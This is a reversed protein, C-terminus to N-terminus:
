RQRRRSRRRPRGNGRIQRRLEGNSLAAISNTYEIDAAGPILESWRQSLVYAWALMLLSIRGGHQRFSDDKLKLSVIISDEATVEFTYRKKFSPLSCDGTSPQWTSTGKAHLVGDCHTGLHLEPVFFPHRPFANYFDLAHFQLGLGRLMQVPMVGVLWVGYRSSTNSAKDLEAYSAVLVMRQAINAGTPRLGCDARYTSIRLQLVVPM